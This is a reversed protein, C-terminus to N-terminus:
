VRRKERTRWTDLEDLMDLVDSPLACAHIVWSEPSLTVLQWQRLVHSARHVRRQALEVDIHLPLVVTCPVEGLSIVPVYRPQQFPEWPGYRLDYVHDCRLPVPPSFHVSHIDAWTRANRPIFWVARGPHLRLELDVLVQTPRATEAAVCAGVITQGSMIPRNVRTMQQPPNVPWVDVWIVRDPTLTDMYDRMNEASSPLRPTPLPTLLAEQM